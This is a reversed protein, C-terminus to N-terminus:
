VEEAARNKAVAVCYPDNPSPDDAMIKAFAKNHENAARLAAFQSPFDIVDDPGLIHMVWEPDKSGAPPRVAEVYDAIADIAEVVSPPAQATEDRYFWDTMIACLRAMEGLQQSYSRELDRLEQVECYAGSQKSMREVVKALEPLSDNTVVFDARDNDPKRAIFTLEMGDVFFPKIQNLHQEIKQKVLQISM